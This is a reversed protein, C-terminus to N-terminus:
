SRALVHASLKSVVSDAVAHLLSARDPAELHQDAWRYLLADEREAHAKLEDQFDRAMDLRVLRLDIGMGLEMLRGRIHAHEDLIARAEAEDVRLLAPLIYREEADMHALLRPEFASYARQIRERDNMEFAAVMRELAQELARHDALLHERISPSPPAHHM